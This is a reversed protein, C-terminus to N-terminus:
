SPIQKKVSHTKEATNYCLQWHISLSKSIKQSRTNHKQEDTMAEQQKTEM